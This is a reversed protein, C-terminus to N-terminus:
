ESDVGVQSKRAAELRDEMIRKVKNNLSEALDIIQNESLQVNVEGVSDCLYIGQWSTSITTPTVDIVQRVKM